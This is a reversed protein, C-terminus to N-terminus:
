GRLVRNAAGVHVAGAVGTFSADRAASGRRWRCRGARGAGGDHRDRGAPGPHAGGVPGAIGARGLGGTHGAGREGCHAHSRRRAPARVRARRVQSRCRLGADPVTATLDPEVMTKSAYFVVGHVKRSPLVFLEGSDLTDVGTLWGNLELVGVSEVGTARAQARDVQASVRHGDRADVGFALDRDLTLLPDFYMTSSPKEIQTAPTPIFVSLSYQDPPLRFNAVGNVSDFWWWKEGTRDQVLVTFTAVQGHRDKGGIEVTHGTPSPEGGGALDAPGAAALSIRHLNPDSAVTSWFERVTAKSVSLALESGAADVRTVTAGMLSSRAATGSNRYRAVVPIDQRGDDYGAAIARDRRVAPPRAPRERYAPRRRHAGRLCAM